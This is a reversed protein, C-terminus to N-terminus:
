RKVGRENMYEKVRDKLRGLPRRRRNAGDLESKYVKEVFNENKTRKYLRALFHHRKKRLNENVFLM